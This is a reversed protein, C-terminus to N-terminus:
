CGRTGADGPQSSGDENRLYFYQEVKASLGTKHNTWEWAGTDAIKIDSRPNYDYEVLIRQRNVYDRDKMSGHWLHYITGPLFGIEQKAYKNFRNSWNYYHRAHHPSYRGREHEFPMGISAYGLAADGGGLICKDYLGFHELAKRHGAWAFGPAPRTDSLNSPTVGNEMQMPGVRPHSAWDSGFVGNFFARALSQQSFLPYTERCYRPSIRGFPVDKPLHSVMEFPQVLRVGSGLMSKASESWDSNEFVIDCDIWAVYEVHRPLKSIGINLLREKQWIRNEGTIQIVIDGDDKGLSHSGPKAIEVVLLPANLSKRFAFFNKLRRRYNAPNFFSTVVWLSDNTKDIM